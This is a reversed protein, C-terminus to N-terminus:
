GKMFGIAFGMSMSGTLPIGLNSIALASVHHSAGFGPIHRTYRMFIQTAVNNLQKKMGGLKDYDRIDEIV